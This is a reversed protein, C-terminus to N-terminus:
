STIFGPVCHQSVLRALFVFSACCAGSVQSVSCSRPGCSLLSSCSIGTRSREGGGGERSPPHDWCLLGLKPAPPPPINSVRHGGQHLWFPRCAVSACCHPAGQACSASAWAPNGPGRFPPGWSQVGEPPPSIPASGARIKPNPPPGSFIGGFRHTRHRQLARVRRRVPPRLVAYRRWTHSRFRALCSPVPAGPLSQQLQPPAPPQLGPLGQPPPPALCSRDGLAWLATSSVAPKSAPGSPPPSLPWGHGPIGPPSPHSCSAGQVCIVAIGSPLEHIYWRPPQSSWAPKM